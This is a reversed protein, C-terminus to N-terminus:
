HIRPQFTAMKSPPPPTLIKPNKQRLQEFYPQNPLFSHHFACLDIKGQYPPVYPIQEAAITRKLSPLNPVSATHGPYIPAPNLM